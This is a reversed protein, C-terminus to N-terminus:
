MTKRELDLQVEGVVDKVGDDLSRWTAMADPDELKVWDRFSGDIASIDVRVSGLYHDNGINNKDMIAVDLTVDDRELPIVFQAGTWLPDATRFCTSTKYAASGELGVAKRGGQPLLKLVCYPSCTETDKHGAPLDRGSLVKAILVDGKPADGGDGADKPPVYKLEVQMLALVHPRALEYLMEAGRTQSHYLWAFGLVKLFGYFPISRLLPGILHAELLNWVGFVIWYTLWQKDDDM